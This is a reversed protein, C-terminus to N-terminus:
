FPMIPDYSLPRGLKRKEDGPIRDVWNKIAGEVDTVPRGKSTKWGHDDYYKLFKGAEDFAADRGMYKWFEDRVKAFLDQREKDTLLQTDKHPFIIKGDPSNHSTNGVDVDEDEDENENENEDVDEDQSKDQSKDQHPKSGDQKRKAETKSEDQKPSKGNEWLQRNRQLIPLVLRWAMKLLSGEFTPQEGDLAYNCIAHFLALQKAEDEIENIAELFSRYFTFGARAGGERTAM